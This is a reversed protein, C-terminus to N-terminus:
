YAKLKRTEPAGDEREADERKRIQAFLEREKDDKTSMHPLGPFPLLFFGLMSDHWRSKDMTSDDYLKSCCKTCIINYKSNTHHIYTLDTSMMLACLYNRLVHLLHVACTFM